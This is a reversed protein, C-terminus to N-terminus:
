KRAERYSEYIAEFLLDGLLRYGSATFHIKDGQALGAEMWGAMSGKGGMVEFWDWFVGKYERALERFAKEAEETHENPHRGRYWSDNIGTFLIACRPNVRRVSKILQRYHEKFRQVDFDAGQIDNIGISFIVLDPRVRRLDKEWLCCRLWSTTSAGNVGAESYTLGRGPRDLYLGRLTYSGKGAFALHLWDTYYPMEFHGDKGRLTDKPGLLLVPELTGEGLLDVSRFTYRPQMLHTERPLLDIVARASTDQAVIAMGTLGLAPEGPRVCSACEWNGVATSSYGSPTNTGAASFPFVLGRGGDCGYRLSMFHRRLRDSWNGGQVHSGGVHLIRVDAGGTTVLTDLKRLFLDYNPASGAPKELVNREHRVFPYHKLAGAPFALAWLALILALRKM